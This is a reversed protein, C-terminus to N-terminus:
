RYCTSRDQLDHGRCPTCSECWVFNDEAHFWGPSKYRSYCILGPWSEKEQALAELNELSLDSLNANKQHAVYMNYSVFLGVLIILFFFKKKM